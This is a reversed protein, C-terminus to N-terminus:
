GDELGVRARLPNVEMASVPAARILVSYDHVRDVCEHGYWCDGYEFGHHDEGVQEGCVACPRNQNTM